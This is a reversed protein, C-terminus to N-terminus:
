RHAHRLGHNRPLPRAPAGTRWLQSGLARATSLHRLSNLVSLGCISAMHNIPSSPIHTGQRMMCGMLLFAM